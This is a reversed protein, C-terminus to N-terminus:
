SSNVADLDNMARDYDDHRVGYIDAGGRGQGDGNKGGVMRGDM